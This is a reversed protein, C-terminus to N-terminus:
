IDTRNEPHKSTHFVNLVRIDKEHVSFIVVYDWITVSKYDGKLEELYRETSYGSFDKLSRCKSIIGSRVKQAASLSSEEKVYDFIGKISEQAKRSIIVKERKLGM